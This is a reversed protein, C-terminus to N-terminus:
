VTTIKLMGNQLKKIYTKYNPALLPFNKIRLPLPHPLSTVPMVSSKPKIFEKQNQKM